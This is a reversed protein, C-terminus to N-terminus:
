VLGERATFRKGALSVMARWRYTGEKLGTSTTPISVTWQQGDDTIWTPDSELPDQTADTLAVFVYALAWGESVPYDALELTWEWTDGAVLRAPVGCPITRTM